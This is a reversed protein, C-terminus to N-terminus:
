FRHSIPGINSNIVLLFDCVGKRNVDFDVIKFSMSSAFIPNKHSKRWKPSCVCKLLLNRRVRCVSNEANFTSKLLELGSGRPELLGGCARTLPTGRLLDNIQRQPSM